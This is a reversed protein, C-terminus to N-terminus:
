RSPQKKRGKGRRSSIQQAEHDHIRQLLSLDAEYKTNAKDRAVAASREADRVEERVVITNPGGLAVAQARARVLTKEVAELDLNLSTELAGFIVDWRAMFADDDMSQAFPPAKDFPDTSRERPAETDDEVDGDNDEDDCIFSNTGSENDEEEDDESDDSGLETEEETETTSEDDAEEDVAHARAAASVQAAAV